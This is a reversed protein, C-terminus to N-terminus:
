ATRSQIAPEVGLGALPEPLFVGNRRGALGAAFGPLVLVVGPLGAAAGQPHGSGVIGGGVLGEPPGAVRHRHVIRGIPRAVVEEGVARDRVIGVGALHVPVELVRGAVHPIEVLDARVDEDVALDRALRALQHRMGRAVAEEVRHLPRVARHDHGLGVHVDVPGLADVLLGALRDVVIRGLVDLDIRRLGILVRSLCGLLDAGTM